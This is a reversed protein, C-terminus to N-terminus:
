NGSSLVVVGRSQFIIREETEPIMSHYYTEVIRYRPLNHSSPYSQISHAIMIDGDIVIEGRTQFLFVYPLSDQVGDLDVRYQGGSHEIIYDVAQQKDSLVTGYEGQGGTQELFRHGYGLTM